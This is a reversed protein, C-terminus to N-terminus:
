MPTKFHQMKRFPFFCVDFVIPLLWQLTILVFVIFFLSHEDKPQKTKTKQRNTTLTEFGPWVAACKKECRNTVWQSHRTIMKILNWSLTLMFQNVQFCVTKNEYKSLLCWSSWTQSRVSKAQAWWVSTTSLLYFRTHQQLKHLVFNHVKTVQQISM